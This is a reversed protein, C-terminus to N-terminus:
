LRYGMQEVRRPLIPGTPMVGVPSETYGEYWPCDNPLSLRVFQRTVTISAPTAEHILTPNCWYLTGDLMRVRETCQERLHECDGDAGPAGEFLGRYALAGDRSSAMIFGDAGWGGRGWAGLGDVHLGPRRHTEGARVIAEDITMYGVDGMPTEHVARDLRSLKLMADVFPRYHEIPFPQDIRFPMMMIRIGSFEPFQVHGLSYIESKMMRDGKDLLPEHTGHGKM